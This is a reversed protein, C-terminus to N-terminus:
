LLAGSPLYPSPPACGRWFAPGRPQLALGAALVVPVAWGQEATLHGVDVEDGAQRLAAALLAQATPADTAGLMLVDSDIDLVAYGQGSATDAVLLQGDGDALLPELDVSHGAGRLGADVTDVLDLDQTTGDRVGPQAPPPRHVTGIAKVIPHLQFGALAYLRMAGPDRSSLILGRACAGGYSLTAQLLRRGIGQGQRDPAVNLLSLGWFDARRMALALGVMRGGDEAVFCGDPDTALLHDLLRRQLVVHRESREAAPEGFGASLAAFSASSVQEAADVDGAAMPRIAPTM